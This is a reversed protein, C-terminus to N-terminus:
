EIEQVIKDITIMECSLEMPGFFECAPLQDLRCTHQKTELGLFTKGKLFRVIKVGKVISTGIKQDMLEVHAFDFSNEDVIEHGDHGYNRIKCFYFQGPQLDAFREVPALETYQGKGGSVKFTFM